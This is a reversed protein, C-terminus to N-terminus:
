GEAMFALLARAEARERPDAAIEAAEARIQEERVQRAREVLASRVAESRSLGTRQLVALADRAAADLRFSVPHTAPM